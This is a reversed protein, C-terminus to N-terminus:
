GILEDGESKTGEKLKKLKLEKIGKEISTKVASEKEKLKYKKEELLQKGQLAPSIEPGLMKELISYYNKAEMADPYVGKDSVFGDKTIATITREQFGLAGKLGITVGKIIEEPTICSEMLLEERRRLLYEQVEIERFLKWAYSSPNKIKPDIARVASTKDLAKNRLYEEIIEIKKETLAIIMVEM